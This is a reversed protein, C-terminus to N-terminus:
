DLSFKELRKSVRKLNEHLEKLENESLSNEIKKIESLIYTFLDVYSSPEDKMLFEENNNSTIGIQLYKKPGTHIVDSVVKKWGHPNNHNEIVVEFKAKYKAVICILKDVFEKKVGRDLLDYFDDKEDFHRICLILVRSFKEGGLLSLSRFFDSPDFYNDLHYGIIEDANKFLNDLDHNEELISNCDNVIKEM